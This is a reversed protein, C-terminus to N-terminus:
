DDKNLGNNKIYLAWGAVCREKKEYWRIRCKYGASKLEDFAIIAQGLETYLEQIKFRKPGPKM